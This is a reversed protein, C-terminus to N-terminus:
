GESPSGCPGDREEMWPSRDAGSLVKVDKHVWVEALKGDAGFRLAVEVEGDEERHRMLQFRPQAEGFYDCDFTVTDEIGPIHASIEPYDLSHQMVTVYLEDVM